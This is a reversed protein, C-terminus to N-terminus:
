KRIGDMLCAEVNKLFNLEDLRREDLERTFQAIKENIEVYKPKSRSKPAEGYVLGYVLRDNAKQKDVLNEIFKYINPKVAKNLNLGNHWGEIKNNTRDKFNHYHNWITSPYIATNEVSVYNKKMYELFKECKKKEDEDNAESLFQEM